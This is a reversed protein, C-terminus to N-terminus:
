LMFWLTISVVVLGGFWPACTEDQWSFPAVACQVPNYSWPLFMFCVGVNKVDRHSCRSWTAMLLSLKDSPALHLSPHSGCVTIVSFPFWASHWIGKHQQQSWLCSLTSSFCLIFKPIEFRGGTLIIVCEEFCATISSCTVACLWPFILARWKWFSARCRSCFCELWKM